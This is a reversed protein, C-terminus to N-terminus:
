CFMCNHKFSIWPFEFSFFDFAIQGLSGELRCIAARPKFDGNLYRCPYIAVGLMLYHALRIIWASCNRYIVSWRTLADGANHCPHAVVDWLFSHLVIIQWYRLRVSVLSTIRAKIFHLCARGIFTRSTFIFISITIPLLRLYMLLM